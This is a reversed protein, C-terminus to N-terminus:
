CIENNTSQETDAHGSPCGWRVFSDMYMYMDTGPKNTADDRLVRTIHAQTGEGDAAPCPCSEVKLPTRIQGICARETNIYCGSHM